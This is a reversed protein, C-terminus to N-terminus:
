QSPLVDQTATATASLCLVQRLSCATASSSALPQSSGSSVAPSASFLCLRLSRSSSTSSRCVVYPTSLLDTKMSMLHKDLQVSLFFHGFAAHSSCLRVRRKPRTAPGHEHNGSLQPRCHSLVLHHRQRGVSCDIRDLDDHLPPLPQGQGPLLGPLRVVPDFGRARARNHNQPCWGTLPARKRFFRWHVCEALEFLVLEDDPDGNAHYKAM